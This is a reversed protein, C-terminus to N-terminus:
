EVPEYELLVSGAAFTRTGTLRLHLPEDLAAFM